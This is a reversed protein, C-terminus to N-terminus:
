EFILYTSSLALSYMRDSSPLLSILSHARCSAFVPAHFNHPIPLPGHVCLVAVVSPLISQKYARSSFKPSLSASPSTNQPTQVLYFPTTCIQPVLFRLTTQDLLAIPRTCDIEPHRTSCNAVKPRVKAKQTNTEHDSEAVTLRSCSLRQKCVFARVFTAIM